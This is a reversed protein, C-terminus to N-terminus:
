RPSRPRYRLAGITGVLFVLFVMGIMPLPVNRVKIATPQWGNIRWALAYNITSPQQSQHKVRIEYYREPALIVRINETNDITSDSLAMSIAGGGTVDVLELDLNDLSITPDFVSGAVAINLPWVLSAVFEGGAAGSMLLYGSVENPTGFGQREDFGFAGITGPGHQGALLIQHTAHVDLQGAGYRYDLGNQTPQQGYNEIDGSQSNATERAAGAMLLAKTLQPSLSAGNLASLLVVASTVSGTAESRSTLPAVLHPTARDAQYIGDLAKTGYSTSTSTMGVALVNFAQSNLPNNRDVGAVQVFSSENILWDLRQLLELNEAATSANGVWSHNATEGTGLLPTLTTGAFLVSTLWDNVYYGDISSLAPTLSGQASAFRKAVSTAHGSFTSNNLGSADSILTVAFAPDAPDALYLPTNEPASVSAEIQDVTHGTGEPLTGGLTNALATYGVDDFYTAHAAGGWLLICLLWRAEVFGLSSPDFRTNTKRRAFWM